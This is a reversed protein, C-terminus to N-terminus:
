DTRVADARSRRLAALAGPLADHGERLADAREQVRVLFSGISRLNCALGDEPLAIASRRDAHVVIDGGLGIPVISVDRIESLWWRQTRQRVRQTVIELQHASCRLEIWRTSGFSGIVHAVALALEWGIRLGGYLVLAAPLALCLLGQGSSALDSWMGPSAISTAILGIAILPALAVVVVELGERSFGLRIPHYSREGHAPAVIRLTDHQNEM